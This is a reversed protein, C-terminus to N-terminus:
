ERQGSFTATTGTTTTSTTMSLQFTIESTTSATFTLADTTLTGSGSNLTVSAIDGGFTSSTHQDTDFTFTAGAVTILWEERDGSLLWKHPDKESPALVFLQQTATTSSPPNGASTSMSSLTGRFLRVDQGGCGVALV